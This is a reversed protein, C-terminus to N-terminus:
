WLYFTFEGRTALTKKLEKVNDNERIIKRPWLLALNTKHTCSFRINQLIFHHSLKTICASTDLGMAAM